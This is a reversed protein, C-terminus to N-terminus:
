EVKKAFADAFSVRREVKQSTAGSLLQGRFPATPARWHPHAKLLADIAGDVKGADIRGDDDLMDDVKAGDRFLDAPDALRGAALRQIDGQRMSEVLGALREAKVEAATLRERYRGPQDDADGQVVDPAPAFAAAWELGDDAAGDPRVEDGDVITEAGRQYEEATLGLGDGDSATETPEVATEAARATTTAEEARDVAAPTAAQRLREANDLNWRVPKPARRVPRRTPRPTAAANETTNESM